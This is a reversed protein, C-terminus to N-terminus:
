SDSAKEIPVWIEFYRTFVGDEHIRVLLNGYPFGIIKYGAQLVRDIVQTQLSSIFTDRGGASFVTHISMLPPIYEVPPAIKIGHQIADSPSLSFGWYYDNPSIGKYDAHESIAFTHNVYPMLSFWKRVSSLNEDGSIFKYEHRLRQFIIAPSETIELSGLESKLRSIRQRHAVLAKLKQQYEHIKHLLEAEHKICRDVFAAHDDENIMKEVDTLSFEFSRHWKSDILFNFDWADYYRYGTEEDKQPAVIGRREYYRLTDIPIGLIQSVEGIKYKLM